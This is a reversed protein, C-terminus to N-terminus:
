WVMLFARTPSNLEVWYCRAARNAIPNFLRVSPQTPIPNRWWAHRNFLSAVGTATNSYKAAGYLNGDSALILADPEKGDPCSTSTCDFGFLEQLSVTQAHVMTATMLVLLLEVMPLPLARRM